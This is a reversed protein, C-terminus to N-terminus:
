AEPSGGLSAEPLGLTQLFSSCFLPPLLPQLHAQTHMALVLGMGLQQPHCERCIQGLSLEWPSAPAWSGVYGLVQPPIQVRGM